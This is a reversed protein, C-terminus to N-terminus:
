LPFQIDWVLPRIILMLTKFNPAQVTWRAPISFGAARQEEASRLDAMWPQVSRRTDRGSGPGIREDILHDPVSVQYRIGFM